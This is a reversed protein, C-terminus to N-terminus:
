KENNLYKKKYKLYKTKYDIGNKIFEKKFDYNPFNINLYKKKYKIYKNFYGGDQTEYPLVRDFDINFPIEDVLINRIDNIIKIFISDFSKVSTYFYFNKSLLNKYQNDNKFNKKLDFYENRDPITNNNISNDKNNILIENYRFKIEDIILYNRKYGDMFNKVNYFYKKNYNYYYKIKYDPYYNYGENTNYFYDNSKRILCEDVTCIKKWIYIEKDCIIITYNKEYNFKILPFMGDFFSKKGEEISLEYFKDEYFSIYKISKSQTSISKRVTWFYSYGEDKLFFYHDTSEDYELYEHFKDCNGHNGFDYITIMLDDIDKFKNIKYINEYSNHRDKSKIISGDYMFNFSINKNKEIEQNFDNKIIKFINNYTTKKNESIGQIKYTHIFYLIPEIKKKEDQSGGEQGSKDKQKNEEAIHIKINKDYFIKLIEEIKIFPSKFEIHEYKKIVILANEYNLKKEKIINKFMEYITSIKYNTEFELRDVIQNENEFRFHLKALLFNVYSLEIIGNGFYFSFHGNMKYYVKESISKDENYNILNNNFKNIIPSIDIKIDFFPDIENNRLSMKKNHVIYETRDIQMYYNLNDKIIETYSQFSEYEKFDNSLEIVEPISRYNGIYHYIGLLIIEKTETKYLFIYSTLNKLENEIKIKSKNKIIIFNYYKNFTNYIKAPRLIHHKDFDFYIEEDKDEGDKDYNYNGIYLLHRDLIKDFIKQNLSVKYINNENINYLNLLLINTIQYMDNFNDTYFEDDDNLKKIINELNDNGNIKFYNLDYISDIKFIKKNKENNFINEFNKNKIYNDLKIFNELNIDLKLLENSKEGNKIIYIMTFLNSKNYIRIYTNKKKNIVIDVYNLKKEDSNFLFKNHIERNRIFENQNILSTLNFEFDFEKIYLYDKDLFIDYNYQNSRKITDSVYFLKINNNDIYPIARIKDARVKPIKRKYWQKNIEYYNIEIQIMLLNYNWEVKIYVNKKQNKFQDQNKIEFDYFYVESKEKFNAIPTYKRRLYEHILHQDFNVNRKIFNYYSEDDLKDFIFKSITQQTFEMIERLCNETIVHLSNKKEKEVFKFYNEIKDDYNEISLETGYKVSINKENEFKFHIKNNSGEQAHFTIHSYKLKGNINSLLMNIYFGSDINKFYLYPNVNDTFYNENNLWIMQLNHNSQRIQDVLNKAYQKKKNPSSQNQISEFVHPIKICIYKENVSMMADEILEEITFKYEYKNRRKQREDTIKKIRFFLYFKVDKNVDKSIEIVIPIKNKNNKDDTYNNFKSNLDDYNDKKSFNTYNVKKDKYSIMILEIDNEDYQREDFNLYDYQIYNVHHLDGHYKDYIERVKNEYNKDFINLIDNWSFIDEKQKTEIIIENLDELGKLSSRRPDQM